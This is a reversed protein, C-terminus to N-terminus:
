FPGIAREAAVVVAARRRQPDVAVTEHRDGAVLHKQLLARQDPRGLAEARVQVSVVQDVNRHGDTETRVGAGESIALRRATGM